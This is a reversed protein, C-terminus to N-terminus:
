YVSQILKALDNVSGNSLSHSCDMGITMAGEDVAITGYLFFETNREVEKQVSIVVKKLSAIEERYDEDECVKAFAEIFEKVNSEGIRIEDAELEEHVALEVALSESKAASTITPTGESTLFENISRIAKKEKVGM